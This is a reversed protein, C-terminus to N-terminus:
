YQGIFYDYKISKVAENLIAINTMNPNTKARQENIYRIVAPFFVENVFKQGQPNLSDEWGYSNGDDSWGYVPWTMNTDRFYNVMVSNIRLKESDSLIPTEDCEEEYATPISWSSTDSIEGPFSTHTTGSISCYPDTEQYLFSASTTLATSLIMMSAWFLIIYKKM